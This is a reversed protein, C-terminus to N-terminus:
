REAAAGAASASGERPESFFSVVENRLEEISAAQNVASRLRSGGDLGKTFWACLARVKGIVWRDHGAARRLDDFPGARHRFGKPEGVRENM